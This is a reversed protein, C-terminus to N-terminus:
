AKDHTVVQVVAGVVTCPKPSEARLCLRSDTDWTGDFEMADFDYEGWIYDADVAVGQEQSPLDDLNDFDAGYQLGSAHTDALVLGLGTVKKRQNLATGMGAAYALKASKFDATYGLGYVVDSYTADLTFSGGSVVSSGKSKGDAWVNVTQGELHGAGTIVEGSTSVHSDMCKSQAYGGVEAGRCESELSWKEFYRGNARGITYYVRDEEAGPLIVVDEIDGDTEVTIWAKLNEAPDTLFVLASGDNLVVHVRTDPENQVAIRKIGAAAIEPVLLMLDNSDYYGYVQDSMAMEYLKIGSRQVYMGRSGTKVADIYSSGKDSAEKLNVNTSTIAEDLSSSRASIESGVTGMMLRNLALLWHVEDVPGFGISRNIARSDGEIDIDYSTYADSVSGWLNTKGAWWLRGEYLRVSTPHGSEDSWQGEYWDSVADTNGMDQLVAASVSQDNTFVNVRCIGTLTGGSFTLTTDVTGSTYDGAKIGIRYYIDQNDLGDDYTKTQNTTYTQVDEWTGPAEVSRQLTVAAVWTGTTLINFIRSNGVGTVKIYNSYQDEGTLSQTVQQGTSDLKFLSGVHDATFFAKDATLTIDGSLASPTLRVPGVNILGFPGDEAEYDVLSWSRQSRRELKKQHKGKCALFVVDASQDFRIYSIDALAYDSVLTMVGTAELAISDVLVEYKTTSAFEIYLNGSPTVEISHTGTSLTTNLYESGGSTSGLRFVVPGREIEIRLPHAVGTDTVTLTQRRIAENFGTGILSMYGGTKWTSTAGSEDADTWSTLNSDFTGNAISGTVATRSIVEDDVWVRVLNNTFEILATTDSSYIFPIFYTEGPVAGLYEFGPRLMMSGLSRPVWNTQTQAAWALRELDLRALGLKSVIGRNFALLPANQRPM